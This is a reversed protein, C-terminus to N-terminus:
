ANIPARGCRFPYPMVMQALSRYRIGLADANPLRLAALDEDCLHILPGTTLIEIDGHRLCFLDTSPCFSDSAVKISGNPGAFTIVTTGFKLTAENDITVTGFSLLEQSLRFWNDPSVWIASFQPSFYAGMTAVLKLITERISGQWVGRWGAKMEPEDSRNMGFFLTASPTAAPLWAQVGKMGSDYFGYRYIYDNIAWDDAAGSLRAVSVKATGASTNREVGTVQYVDIRMDGATGTRTPNAQLKMGKKFKVADGQVTLVFTDTAGTVAETTRGINSAGDGWVQVGKRQEKMSNLLGSVEKAKTELYANMSGKARMAGPIDYTIQGYMTSTDTDANLQWRDFYSSQPVPNTGDITPGISENDTYNFPWTILNGYLSDKVPILDGLKTEVDGHRSLDGEFFKDKYMKLLTTQTTGVTLAM